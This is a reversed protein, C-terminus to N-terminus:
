MKYECDDLILMFHYHQNTIALLRDKMNQIDFTFTSKIEVLMNFETLYFDVIAIRNKNKVTDFYPIKVKEVEYLIKQEDLKEAYRFENSSRLYVQKDDWTTHYGCKCYKFNSNNNSLVRRGSMIANLQSEAWTRLDVGNKKFFFHATNLRIGYKDKIEDLTMLKDFYETKLIDLAKENAIQMNSDCIGLKQFLIINGIYKKCDVCYKSRNIDKACGCSICKDWTKHKGM